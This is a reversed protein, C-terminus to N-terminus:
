LYLSNNTIIFKMIKQVTNEIKNLLDYNNFYEGITKIENSIHILKLCCKIFEGIFLESEKKFKSLFYNSSEIDHCSNIWEKIYEIMNTQITVNTLYLNYKTEEDMYKNMIDRILKIEKEFYQNTITESKLEYFCSFLSLIDCGSYNHFGNTEEYLECFLLPNIEHIMCCMKGKNTLENNEIYKNKELIFLIHDVQNKIYNETYIKYNEEKQLDKKKEIIENYFKLEGEHIDFTQIQRQYKKRQNPKLNEIKSKLSLYEEIKTKNKILKENERINLNYNIINTEIQKLENEIDEYMFSKKIYEIIEDKNKGSSLFSLIINYDIRFKSKINQSKSTLLDKYEMYSLPDYLNSLLIVNGITDINRRGARGAMQIFEHNYLKRLSNGDHKHLSTFCVTKTPMNLGVAFTETAILVKIYKQEYLVEMMERFIPLMGAHHYGIGKELLDVYIKYEPLSYYEKWNTIKSVLLQKCISSIQYDKEGEEFLSVYINKAIDEVKKRSFVFFLAPFMEKEKLNRCLENIVYISNNKHNNNNVIKLCKNIKHINEEIILDDKIISLKDNNENLLLREKKDKIKDIVSQPSIYYHYIILPVVRKNTSCIAVEKGKIKRIWNSFIEPNGITASLMVFQIHNPLLMITNEWITGREGDNIYHVEDFIVCGLDNKIDIDFDLFSKLKEKSDLKLLQNQLIETTMILIDASPNHKIDGTLIGINKYKKSFDLFKQNSLAKIPSSYIIKKGLNLFHEIAYEAPLTKGSGTHATVLVHNGLKINDIAKLQFESLIM